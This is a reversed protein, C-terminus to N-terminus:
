LIDEYLKSQTTKDVFVLADAKHLILIVSQTAIEDLAKAAVLTKPADGKDYEFWQWGEAPNRMIRSVCKFHGPKGIVASTFEYGVHQKTEEDHIFITAFEEVTPKSMVIPTTAIQDGIQERNIVFVCFPPFQKRPIRKMPLHRNFQGTSNLSLLM